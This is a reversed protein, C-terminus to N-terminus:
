EIHVEGQHDPVISKDFSERRQRHVPESASIENVSSRQKAQDRRSRGYDNWGNVLTKPNGATSAMAHPVATTAVRIAAKGSIQPSPARKHSASASDM